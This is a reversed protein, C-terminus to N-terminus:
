ISRTFPIRVRTNLKSPNRRSIGKVATQVFRGWISGQCVSDRARDLCATLEGRKGRAAAEDGRGCRTLHPWSSRGTVRRDAAAANRRDPRLGDAMARDFNSDSPDRMISDWTRGTRRIPRRRSTWKMPEPYRQSDRLRNLRGVGHYRGSLSPRFGHGPSARRLAGTRRYDSALPM